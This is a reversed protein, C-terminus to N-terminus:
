AQQRVVAQNHFRLDITAPFMGQGRGRLIERLREWKDPFRGNGMRVLAPGPIHIKIDEQDSCELTWGPECKGATLIATIARRRGIENSGALRLIPLKEAAQAPLLFVMGQADIALGSQELRAVPRRLIIEARLRGWPFVRTMIREVEPHKKAYATALAAAGNQWLRRGLCPALAQRLGERHDADALISVSRVTDLRLRWVAAASGAVILAVAATGLLARLSRRGRERSRVRAASKKDFYRNVM